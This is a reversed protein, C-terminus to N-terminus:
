GTTKQHEKDKNCCVRVIGIREREKRLAACSPVWLSLPLLSRRLLSHGRGTYAGPCILAAFATRVQAGDPLYVMRFSPSGINAVFISTRSLWNMQVDVDENAVPHLEVDVHPWRRQVADTVEKPVIMRRKDGELKVVISLVIREQEPAPVHPVDFLSYALDRMQRFKSFKCIRTEDGDRTWDMGAASALAQRMHVYRPRKTAIDM